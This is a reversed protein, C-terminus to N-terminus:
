DEFSQRSCECGGEGVLELNSSMYRNRLILDATAVLRQPLNGRVGTRVYDKLSEVCSMWGESDHFARLEGDCVAGYVVGVVEVLEDMDCADITTIRQVEVFECDSPLPLWKAAHVEDERYVAATYLCESWRKSATWFKRPTDKSALVFM